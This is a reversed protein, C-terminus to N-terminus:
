SLCDTRTKRKLSVFASDPVREVIQNFIDLARKYAALCLETSIITPGLNSENDVPLKPLADFSECLSVKGEGVQGSPDFIERYDIIIQSSLSSYLLRLAISSGSISVLNIQKRSLNRFILVTFSLHKLLWM